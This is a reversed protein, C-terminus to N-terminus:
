ALVTCYAVIATEFESTGPKHFSHEGKTSFSEVEIEREM